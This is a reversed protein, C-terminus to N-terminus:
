LPEGSVWELYLVPYDDRFFVTPARISPNHQKIHQFHKIARLDLKWSDADQGVRAAWQVSDQFIIKFVNHSRGSRSSEDAFSCPVGSRLRSAEALIDSLRSQSLGKMM